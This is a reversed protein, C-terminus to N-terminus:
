RYRRLPTFASCITDPRITVQQHSLFRESQDPTPEFGMRGVKWNIDTYQVWARTTAFLPAKRYALAGRKAKLHRRVQHPSSSRFQQSSQRFTSRVQQVYPQLNGNGFVRM